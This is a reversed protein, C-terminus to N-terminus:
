DRLCLDVFQMYHTKNKKNRTHKKIAQGLPMLLRDLEKADLDSQRCVSEICKVFIHYCSGDDGSGAPKWNGNRDMLVAKCKCGEDDSLDGFIAWLARLAHQDYIPNEGRQLHKAFATFVVGGNASVVLDQKSYNNAFDKYVKWKGLKWLLAEALNGPTSGSEDVFSDTHRLTPFKEEDYEKHGFESLKSIAANVLYRTLIRNEISYQLTQILEGLDACQEVPGGNMVVGM